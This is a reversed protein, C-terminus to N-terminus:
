SCNELIKGSYKERGKIISARNIKPPEKHVWYLFGELIEM